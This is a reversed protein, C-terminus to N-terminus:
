SCAAGTQQASDNPPRRAYGSAYQEMKPTMSPVLLGAMVQLPEPQWTSIDYGDVEPDFDDEDRYAIKWELGNEKLWVNFEDPSIFERGDCFADYLPHTWYGYQDREVPIAVIKNNM